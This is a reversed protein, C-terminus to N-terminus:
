ACLGAGACDRRKRSRGAPGRGEKPSEIPTKRLLCSKGDKNKLIPRKAAAANLQAKTEFREYACIIRQVLEHRVVDKHTLHYDQDGGRKELVKVAQV